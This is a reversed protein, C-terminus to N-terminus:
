FFLPRSSKPRAFLPLLLYPYSLLVSINSCLLGEKADRSMFVARSPAPLSGGYDTRNPAQTRPFPAATRQGNSISLLGAVRGRFKQSLLEFGLVSGPMDWGRNFPPQKDTKAGACLPQPKNQPPKNQLCPVLFLGTSIEVQFGM